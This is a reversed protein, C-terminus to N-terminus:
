ATKLPATPRDLLTASTAAMLLSRSLRGRGAYVHLRCYRSLEAFIGDGSVIVLDTVGRSLYHHAAQLLAQDAADRESPVWRQSWPGDLISVYKRVLGAQLALTTPIGDVM